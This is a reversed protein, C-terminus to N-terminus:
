DQDDPQVSRQHEGFPSRPVDNYDLLGFMSLGTASAQSPTSADTRSTTPSGSCIALTRRPEIVWSMYKGISANSTGSPTHSSTLPTAACAVRHARVAFLFRQFSCALAAHFGTCLCDKNLAERLLFPTPVCSYLKIIQEPSFMSGSISTLQEGISHVEREGLAGIQCSMRACAIVPSSRAAM